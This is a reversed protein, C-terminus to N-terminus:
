PQLHHDNMNVVKTHITDTIKINDMKERIASFELSMRTLRESLPRVKETISRTHTGIQNFSYYASVSAVISGALGAIVAVALAVDSYRMEKKSISIGDEILYQSELLSTELRTIMNKQDVLSEQTIKLSEKAISLNKELAIMAEDKFGQSVFEMLGHSPILKKNVVDILLETVKKDTILESTFTGQSVQISISGTFTDENGYTYLVGERELYNALMMLRVSLSNIKSIEQTTFDQSSANSESNLLAFVKNQQFDVRIGTTSLINELLWAFTIDLEQSHRQLILTLIQKEFFDFSKM